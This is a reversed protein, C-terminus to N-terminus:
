DPVEKYSLKLIPVKRLATFAPQALNFFAKAAAQRQYLPCNVPRGQHRFVNAAMTENKANINNYATATVQLRKQSKPLDGDILSIRLGFVAM